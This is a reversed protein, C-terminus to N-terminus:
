GHGSSGAGSQDRPGRAAWGGEPVERGTRRRRVAPVGSRAQRRQGFFSICFVVAGCSIATVLSLPVTEGPGMYRVILFIMPVTSLGGLVSAHLVRALSPPPPAEKGGYRRIDVRVFLLFAEVIPTFLIWFWFWPGLDPNWTRFLILVAWAVAFVAGAVFARWSPVRDPRMSPTWGLREGVRAMMRPVGWVLLFMAVLQWGDSHTVRYVVGLAVAGVVDYVLRPRTPLLMGLSRSGNTDHASRRVVARYGAGVCHLRRAAARCKSPLHSACGLPRHRGDRVPTGRRAPAGGPSRVVCSQCTTRRRCSSRRSGICTDGRIVRLSM